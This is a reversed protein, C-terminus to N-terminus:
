PEFLNNNVVVLTQNSGESTHMNARSRATMINDYLKLKMQLASLAQPNTDIEEVTEQVYSVEGDKGDGKKGEPMVTTTTVLKRKKRMQFANKEYQENIQKIIDSPEISELYRDQILKIAAKVHPISTLQFAFSHASAKSTDYVEHCSKTANMTQAYSTIFAAQKATFMGQHEKALPLWDIRLKTTNPQVIAQKKKPKQKQAM